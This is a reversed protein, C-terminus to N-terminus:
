CSAGEIWVSSGLVGVQPHCFPHWLPPSISIIYNDRSPRVALLGCWALILAVSRPSINIIRKIQSDTFGHSKVFNLFCEPRNSSKLRSLSRSVKSAEAASLGWSNVLYEVVSFPKLPPVASASSSSFLNSPRFQVPLSHICSRRRIVFPLM